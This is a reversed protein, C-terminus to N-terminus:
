RPPEHDPSTPAHHPRALVWGLARCAPCFVGRDSDAADAYGVRGRGACTSCEVAGGPRKPLLDQLWPYREAGAVLAVVHLEEPLPTLSTELDEDTDWLTGDPRLLWTSGITGMLALADHARAEIDISAGLGGRDIAARVEDAIYQPLIM